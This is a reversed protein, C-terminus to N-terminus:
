RLASSQGAYQMTSIVRHLANSNRVPAMVDPPCALWDPTDLMPMRIEPPQVARFNVHPLSFNQVTFKPINLKPLPNQPTPASKKAIAPTQRQVPPQPAPAPREIVPSKRNQSKPVTPKHKATMTEPLKLADTMWSVRKNIRRFTTEFPLKAPSKQPMKRPPNMPPAASFLPPANIEASVQNLKDVASEMEYVTSTDSETFETASRSTSDAPPNLAATTQPVPPMSTSGLKESDSNQAVETTGDDDPIMLPSDTISLDIGSEVLSNELAPPVAAPEQFTSPVSPLETSAIEPIPPVPTSPALIQKRYIRSRYKHWREPKAEAPLMVPHEPSGPIESHAMAPNPVTPEGFELEVPAAARPLVTVSGSKFRRVFDNSSVDGSDDVPDLSEAIEDSDNKM